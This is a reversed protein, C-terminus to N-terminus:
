FVVEFFCKMIKHDSIWMIFCAKLLWSQSFSVPKASCMVINAVMCALHDAL